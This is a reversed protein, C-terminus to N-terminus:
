FYSFYFFINIINKKQITNLNYIILGSLLNLIITQIPFDIINTAGHGIISVIMPYKINM